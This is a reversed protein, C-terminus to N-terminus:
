LVPLEESTKKDEHTSIVSGALSTWGVTDELEVGQWSTPDHSWSVRGECEVPGRCVARKGQWWWRQKWKGEITGSEKLRSTM